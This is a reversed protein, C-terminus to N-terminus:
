TKANRRSQETYCVLEWLVQAGFKADIDNDSSPTVECLDFGIINKGANLMESFLFQIENLEFGGAVPAGTNPCFYPKLGDIDFSIYINNPMENIIDGISKHWSKGKLIDKKINWDYFTHIREQENSFIFEDESLDRVGLQILKTLNPCSNLANRMVSAQSQDFGLYTSRLSAHADIHLVGFDDYRESIAQILGLPTSHEGGLIAVIKNQNLLEACRERLNETLISQIHNINEIENKFYGIAKEEGEEEFYRIYESSKESCSSNIKKWESSIETMFVNTEYAKDVDPHFFDMQISAKLISQPGLSSGKHTSTTADWPVPIIVIDANEEKCPFGFINGNAM